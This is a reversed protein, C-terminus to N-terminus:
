RLTVQVEVMSTKRIQTEPLDDQEEQQSQAEEHVLESPIDSGTPGETVVIDDVVGVGGTNLRVTCDEQGQFYLALGLVKEIARSTAKLIVAEPEKERDTIARLKQKDSGKGDVLNDSKYSRKEILSLLKRVRKVASVFPTKTSVYIVKPQNAGTYPSPIPPHLMPRKRIRANKPLRRLKPPPKKKISSRPRGEKPSDKRTQGPAGRDILPPPSAM